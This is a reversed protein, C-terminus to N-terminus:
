LKLKKRYWEITRRLGEELDVAPEYNLIERAKDISARSHLIDGPRPPAFRPEISTGLIRNIAEVIGLVSCSHGCAINIVEGPAREATVARLNAMVNNQIYTFDRTQIGDGYITPQNGQLMLPIFIAMVGTYPSHPNQRPGFVNFYRLCVTELGYTEYFALCYYEGALKSVGYPSIPRPPIKEHKDPEHSDGYASSSAAYVLRKVGHDRAALLVNLTGTVNAEHTELPNKVSRPVSPLAGQHLVYDVGEMARAVAPGDELQIEHLTIRDRFLDLNERLGTSFNDIVVVEHGDQLLQEVLHSGIFGAGGTVMFRAM